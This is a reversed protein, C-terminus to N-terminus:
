GRVGRKLQKTFGAEIEWLDLLENVFKDYTMSKNPVAKDVREKTRELVPLAAYKLPEKKTRTNTM